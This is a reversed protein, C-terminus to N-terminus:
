ASLDKTKQHAENSAQKICAIVTDMSGRIVLWTILWLLFAMVLMAVVSRIASSLVDNGALLSLVAATLGILIVSIRSVTFATELLIPVPREKRAKPEPNENKEQDEPNKEPRAM